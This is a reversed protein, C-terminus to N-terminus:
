ALTLTSAKLCKCSCAEAPIRAIRSSTRARGSAAGWPCFNWSIWASSGLAMGRPADAMTEVARPDVM